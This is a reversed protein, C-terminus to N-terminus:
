LNYGVSLSLGRNRFEERTMKGNEKPAINRLGAQATLQLYFRDLLMMGALLNLGM